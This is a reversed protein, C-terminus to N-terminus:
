KRRILSVVFDRNKKYPSISEVRHIKFGELMFRGKYPLKGSFSYLAQVEPADFKMLLEKYNAIKYAEDEGHLWHFINSTLVVDYSTDLGIEPLDVIDEHYFNPIEQKRLISQLRYYEDRDFYPITRGSRYETSFQTVLSFTMVLSLSNTTQYENLIKLASEVPLCRLLKMMIEFDGAKAGVFFYYFEEYSLLMIGYFKLLFYDWADENIDFLDIKKAGFLLSSFYQDGSGLVSLVNADKFHYLSNYSTINENSFAYVKEM